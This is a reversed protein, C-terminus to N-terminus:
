NEAKGFLRRFFWMISRLPKTLRWSHSQEMETLDNRLESIANDGEQLKRILEEKETNHSQIQTNAIELNSLAESLANNLQDNQAYASNLDNKLRDTDSELRAVTKNLNDRDKSLAKLRKDAANLRESLQKREGSLSGLQTNLKVNDTNIKSLDTSLKNYAANAKGLESILKDNEANVNILENSLKTNIDNVSGLENVLKTNEASLSNIKINLRENGTHLEKIESQLTATQKEASEKLSNIKSLVTETLVNYSVLEKHDPSSITPANLLDLIMIPKIGDREIPKSGHIDCNIIIDAQKCQQWEEDILSSLLFNTTQFIISANYQSLCQSLFKAAIDQVKLLSIKKGSCKCIFSFFNAKDFFDYSVSKFFNIANIAWTHQKQLMEISNQINKLALEKLEDFYATPLHSAIEWWSKYYPSLVPIDKAYAFKGVIAGNQDIFSSWPKPVIGLGGAFHVITAFHKDDFREHYVANCNKIREDDNLAYAEKYNQYYGLMYNYKYYSSFKTKNWFCINFISEDGTDYQYDVEKLHDLYFQLDINDSRFKSINMLLMASNFYTPWINKNTRMAYEEYKFKVLTPHCAAYFYYGNIDTCYLDRIDKQVIMDTDLYLIKDISDPLYLHAFLKYYMSYAGHWPIFVSNLFKEQNIKIFTVNCNSYKDIFEKCSSRLKDDWDSEMIYFNIKAYSNSEIVSLMLVMAPYFLSRSPTILINYETFDKKLVERFCYDIYKDLKRPLWDDLKMPTYSMSLCRSLDMTIEPHTTFPFIEADSSLIAKKGTKNEVYQIVERMSISGQSAFNVVGKFNNQSLFYLFKAEDKNEVFNYRRDLNKENIPEANIVASVYRLIRSASEDDYDDSLSMVFPIRVIAYNIDPYKDEILLESNYKGRQYWATDGVTISPEYQRGSISFDDESINCGRHYHAYVGFSSVYIYRDTKISSLVWDVCQPVLASCDFVVDFFMGNLMSRTTTEDFRDFIIKKVSSLDDKIKHKGRVAITVDDGNSVCLATLESSMRGTGGLILVKRM